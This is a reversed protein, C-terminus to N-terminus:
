EIIVKITETKEDNSVTVFYIGKELDQLNLSTNSNINVSSVVKGLIDNVQVLYNENSDMEINIIGNSPNPYVNLGSIEEDLAVSSGTIMRIAAATGNSYVQDGPIYIMSMYFPQPITEDDLIYIDTDNGNSYMEVSIFYAGANLYEPSAFPVTIFGNDVDQQTVLYFDSTAITNGPDFTEASILTTDRIAVVLEGGAVTLPSSYAYSDLM